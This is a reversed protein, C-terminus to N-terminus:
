LAIAFFIDIEPQNFYPNKSIGDVSEKSSRIHADIVM